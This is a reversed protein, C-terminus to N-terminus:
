FPSLVSLCHGLSAESSFQFSARSQMMYKSTIHKWPVMQKRLKVICTRWIPTIIQESHILHHLKSTKLKRKYIQVSQARPSCYTCLTMMPLSPRKLFMVAASVSEIQDEIIPPGQSPIRSDWLILHTLMSAEERGSIHKITTQNCLFLYIQVLLLLTAKLQLFSSWQMEGAHLNIPIREQLQKLAARLIVCAM